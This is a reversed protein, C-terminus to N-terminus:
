DTAPLLGDARLQAVFEEFDIFDEDKSSVVTELAWYNRILVLFAEIPIVVASKRGHADAVFKMDALFPLQQAYELHTMPLGSNKAAASAKEERRDLADSM